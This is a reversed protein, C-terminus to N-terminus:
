KRRRKKRYIYYGAGGAGAAALLWWLWSYDAGGDGNGDGIKTFTALLTHNTDMKVTISLADGADVGDKKWKSLKWGSDPTATVPVDQNVPYKYTQGSAPNTSGKGVMQILLSKKTPDPTDSIFVPAVTTDQRLDGNFLTHPNRTDTGSWMSTAIVWHDFTWGSYHFAEVTVSAGAQYSHSGASPTTYGGESSAMTLVYDETGSQVFVATFTENAQLDEFTHTADTPSEDGNRLFWKFVWGSDPVATITINQGVVYPGYQPRIEGEGQVTFTPYAPTPELSDIYAKLEALSEYMNLTSPGSPQIWGYYRALPYVPTVFIDWGKYTEVYVDEPRLPPPPHPDDPSLSWYVHVMYFQGATLPVLVPNETHVVGNVDFHDLQYGPFPTATIYIGPYPPPWPYDHQGYSPDTVGGINAPVIIVIAVPPISDILSRIAEINNAFNTQTDPVFSTSPDGLVGYFFLGWKYIDWGKYTEQFVAGVFGVM